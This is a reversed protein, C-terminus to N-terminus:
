GYMFVLLPMIVFRHRLTLLWLFGEECKVSWVEIYLIYSPYIAELVPTKYYASIIALVSENIEYLAM